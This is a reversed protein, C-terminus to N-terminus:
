AATAPLLGERRLERLTEYSIADRAPTRAPLPTIRGASSTKAQPPKSEPTPLPKEADAPKDTKVEKKPPTGASANAAAEAIKGKLYEVAKALPRDTFESAPPGEKSLVDRKLRYDAYADLEGPDLDIRYTEDPKVGWEDGEKSDPFRHINKGSPRHYSSTTLKLASQGNELQIVNQVSGKGWTREGIVVARKHDQLAASVIESASASYRNVLVAMPFGSYTGPKRAYATKEETNRGKTSVIKGEDLFLDAVEIAINLLGGPNMRLDLVLGKMGQSSLEKLAKRLEEATNRSFLTLRIYGLKTTEDLMFDWTEDAKYKDGMVTAPHILDREMTLQEIQSAGRHLVGITVPDGKNGRLIRMADPITMKETTKGNIEMITDGARVGARHAPTGPLPSTVTLRRSQRDIGVQIGIGGFEQEVQETFRGFEDRNIYNSYPDLEEIMGKLAAEVLKRRDVETVYNRDIQEFTDAFVRILEFYQEETAKAPAADAAKKEPAAQETSEEQASIVMGGLFSILVLGVSIVWRRLSM